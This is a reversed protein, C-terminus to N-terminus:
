KQYTTKAMRLLIAGVKLGTIYALM